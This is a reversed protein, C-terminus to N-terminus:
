GNTRILLIPCPAHHLVYDAVSGMVFRGIGGRGHTTMVVLDAHWEKAEHIICEGAPGDLRRWHVPVGEAEIREAIHALYMDAEQRGAILFPGPDLAPGAGPMASAASAALLSAPPSYARMLSIESGHLKAIAIAHPIAKEALSSGDLAMVVRVYAPVGRRSTDSTKGTAVM